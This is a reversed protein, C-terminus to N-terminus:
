MEMADIVDTNQEVSTNNAMENVQSATIEALSIDNVITSATESATSSMMMDIGSTDEDEISSTVPLTSSVRILKDIGRLFRGSDSYCRKPELILECIRQITFPAREFVALGENVHRLEESVDVVRDGNLLQIAMNNRMVQQLIKLLEPTEQKVEAGQFEKLAQIGRDLTVMSASVHMHM